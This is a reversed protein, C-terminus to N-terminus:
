VQGVWTVDSIERWRMRLENITADSIKFKKLNDINEKFRSPNTTGVIASAVQPQALTFGLATAVGEALNSDQLRFKLKQLRRWYEQHYDNEPLKTHKWATNAVPRKAIVGINGEKAKPLLLDIGLQDAVNISTELIDFKGCQIASLAAANDGSYGIFRVYGKERAAELGALAEGWTFELEACSHLLVIDVYDTQLSRLSTEITRLIGSKSWDSKSFGEIAGCKTSIVVDKRHGKLATGLLKESELYAAASDFLTVGSDLASSILSNVTAQTMGPTFGIEAGGFGLLSVKLNTKGLIRSEM